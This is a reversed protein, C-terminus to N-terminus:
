WYTRDFFWYCWEPFGHIPDDPVPLQAPCGSTWDDYDRSPVREMLAYANWWAAHGDAFAYNSGGLHRTYRGRVNPDTWFAKRLDGSLGCQQSWPCNEWDADCWTKCIEFLSQQASPLTVLICADGAVVWRVPDQMQVMKTGALADEACAITLEPASHGGQSTQFASGAGALKQQVFSDTVDGGWGSPYAPNCLQILADTWQNGWQGEAAQLQGFWGGPGYGPLINAPGQQFKASPCRWVDRNKVYEDLVVPWRLYPNAYTTRCGCGQATLYDTVEPRSEVPPFTDNNDALYMQIALGVNKVNSLCVSKRASERARAFVPFVMAALIGIIAIVVLLEILTFGRSRRTTM